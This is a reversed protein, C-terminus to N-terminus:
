NGSEATVPNSPIKHRCLPRQPWSRSSTSLGFPNTPEPGAAGRHPHALGWQQLATPPSPTTPPPPQTSPPQQLLHNSCSLGDDMLTQGPSPPRPESCKTSGPSNTGLAPLAPLFALPKPVAGLAQTPLLCGAQTAHSITGPVAPPQPRLEPAPPRCPSHLAPRRQPSAARQHGCPFAGLPKTTDGFHLHSCSVQTHKM